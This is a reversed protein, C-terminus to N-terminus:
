VYNSKNDTSNGDTELFQLIQNRFTVPSHGYTEPDSTSFITGENNMIIFKEPWVAFTEEFTNDITDVITPIRFNMENVMLKAAELRDATTKHQPICIRNGLKWEDCAHAEKIYVTFLFM